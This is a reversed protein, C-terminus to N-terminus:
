TTFLNPSWNGRYSYSKASNTEPDRSFPGPFLTLTGPFPGMFLTGSFLDGFYPGQFFPGPFFPGPFFTISFTRSFFPGPFLGRFLPGPVLGPFFTGSFPTGFSCNESEARSISAFAITIMEFPCSKLLKGFHRASFFTTVSVSVFYFFM